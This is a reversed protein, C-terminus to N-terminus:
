EPCWVCSVPLLYSLGRALDESRKAAVPNEVVWRNYADMELSNVGLIYGM